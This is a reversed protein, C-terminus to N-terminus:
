GREGGNARTPTTTRRTAEQATVANGVLYGVLLLLAAGFEAPAQVQMVACVAMAIVLIAGLVIVGLSVVQRSSVSTIGRRAIHRAVAVDRVVPLRAVDVAM